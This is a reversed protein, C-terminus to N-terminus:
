NLDVTGVQESPVAQDPFLGIALPLEPFRSLTLLICLNTPRDPHM